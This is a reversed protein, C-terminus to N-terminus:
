LELITCSLGPGGGPSDKEWTVKWRRASGVSGWSLGQFSLWLYLFIKTLSPYVESSAQVVLASCSSRSWSQLYKPKNELGQKLFWNPIPSRTRMEITKHIEKCSTSCLALPFDLQPPFIQPDPSSYIFSYSASTTGPFTSCSLLWVSFVRVGLFAFKINPSRLSSKSDALQLSM